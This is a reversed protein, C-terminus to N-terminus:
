SFWTRDDDYCLCVCNNSCLATQALSSLSSSLSEPSSSSALPTGKRCRLTERSGVSQFVTNADGEHDNKQSHNAEYRSRHTKWSGSTTEPFKGVKGKRPFPACSVRLHERVKTSVRVLRFRSEAITNRATVYSRRTTKTDERRENYVLSRCRKYM